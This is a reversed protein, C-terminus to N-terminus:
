TGVVSTNILIGKNPTTGLTNSNIPWVVGVKMSVTGAADALAGATNSLFIAKNYAQSTLDWGVLLGKQVVTVPQGAKCSRLAIGSSEALAGAASANSLKAKGSTADIYVSQGATIAVEAILTYSQLPIDGAEIKDATVLALDAM